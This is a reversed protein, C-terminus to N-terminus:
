DHYVKSLFDDVRTLQIDPLLQNWAENVAADGTSGALWWETMVKKAVLDGLFEPIIPHRWPPLWPSTFKGQKLDEIKLVHRKLKKGSYQELKDLLHRYEITEGAIGGIEPWEGEFDVAAAVVRGTDQITTFSIQQAGDEVMLAQGGEVDIGICTIYLHEATKRPWVTLDLFVGPQFLSYELVTRESNLNRLHALIEDKYEAGPERASSSLAWENPAFRRVGASVAASILAKQAPGDAVFSLVVDVGNLASALSEPNSYDVAVLSVDEPMQSDDKPLRMSLM